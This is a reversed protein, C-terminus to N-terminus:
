DATDAAAGGASDPQEEDRYGLAGLLADLGAERDLLEIRLVPRGAAALVEADGAAQAAILSAFGHEQGPIAVAADADTPAATIQLFSGIAPGGKHLQGTSHLYRPGWGFSVPVRFRSALVPRLLAAREDGVPSLFAQVALYGPEGLGGVLASLAEDLEDATGLLARSGSIRLPGDEFSVEAAAAADGDGGLLARASAKAAEVDPQDFPNVGIGYCLIATVHEWLLLQAGLPEEVSCAIGSAPQHDGIAPGIFALATTPGADRFGPAEVDEVAIPVIGRGDKGTSEAVLQELWEPLGVIREDTGAVALIHVGRAHAASLMSAIVLAPNSEDDAALSPAIAQAEAIVSAIDAGALGAPVIGFPGLVSFRGGVRPDALFIRRWGEAEARDALASGPDTIAILRRSADIGADAFAQAFAARAADTEATTGSKTSVIVATQSLDGSLLDALAQPDTTDVITLPARHSRAVVEAGLSSGGMGCLVYRTVGDAALEDRLAAVEDLLLSSRAALDVWGLRQAAEGAAADGWLQADQEAVRSAARATILDRLEDAQEEPVPFGIDTSM